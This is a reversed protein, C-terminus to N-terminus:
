PCRKTVDKEMKDVYVVATDSVDKTCMIYSKDNLVRRSFTEVVYSVFAQFCVKDVNCGVFRCHKPVMMCPKATTFVWTISYVLLQGGKWFKSVHSRTRALRKQDQRM